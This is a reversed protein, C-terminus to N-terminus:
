FTHKWRASLLVSRPAGPELFRGNGDNVIVSGVYQRDFLNEARLMLELADAGGLQV